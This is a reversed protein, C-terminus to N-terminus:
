VRPGRIIVTSEGIAPQVRGCSCMDVHGSDHIIVHNQRLPSPEHTLVVEAIKKNLSIRHANVTPRAGAWRGEIEV